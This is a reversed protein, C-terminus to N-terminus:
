GCCEPKRPSQRSGLGLSIALKASKDKAGWAAPSAATTTLAANKINAEIKITTNASWFKAPRYAVTTSDRWRWEGPANTPTTTVTLRNTLALRDRAPITKSFTVTPIVGVGYTGSVPFLTATFTNTAAGTRVERTITKTDRALKVSPASRRLTATM